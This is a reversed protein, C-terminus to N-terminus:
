RANRMEAGAPEKVLAAAAAQAGGEFKETPAHPALYSYTGASEAKAEELAVSFATCSSARQVSSPPTSSM